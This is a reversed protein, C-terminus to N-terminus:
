PKFDSANKALYAGVSMPKKGLLEELDGCHKAFLGRDVAELMDAVLEIGNGCIERQQALYEVMEKRGIQKYAIDDDLQNAATHAVAEFDVAEPGTLEYTRPPFRPDVLMNCLGHAADAGALPVFRANAGASLCIKHESAIQCRFLWLLDIHLSCRVLSAVGVKAKARDFAKEMECLPELMPLGSMQDANIASCMALGAVKAEAAASVFVSGGKQGWQDDGVPPSIVVVDAKGYAKAIVDVGDAIALRICGAGQKELHEVLHNAAFYTAYVRGFHKGKHKLLATALQYGSYTDCSTVLISKRASSELISAFTAM